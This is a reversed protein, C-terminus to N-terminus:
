TLDTIKDRDFVKDNVCSSFNQIYFKVNEQNKIKMHYFRKLNEKGHFLHKEINEPYPKLYDSNTKCKMPKPVSIEKWWTLIREQDTSSAYCSNIIVPISLFVLLFKYKLGM